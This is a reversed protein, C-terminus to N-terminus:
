MCTSGQNYGYICARLVDMEDETLLRPQDDGEDLHVSSLDPLAEFPYRQGYM